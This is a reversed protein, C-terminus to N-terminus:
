LKLLQDRAGTAQALEQAKRRLDATPHRDNGGVQGFLDACHKYIRVAQGPDQKEAEEVEALAAYVESRASRKDGEHWHIEALGVHLLGRTHAKEPNKALAARICKKAEDYQGRRRLVSQRVDCQDASMSNYGLIEVIRNSLPLMRWYCYTALPLWSLCWAAVKVPALLKPRLAAKLQSFATGLISYYTSSLASYGEARVQRDNSQMKKNEQKRSKSFLQLKALFSTENWSLDYISAM